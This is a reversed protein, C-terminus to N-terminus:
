VIRASRGSGDCQREDPGFSSKLDVYLVGSNVTLLGLKLMDSALAKVMRAMLRSLEEDGGGIRVPLTLNDVFAISRLKIEDGNASIEVM